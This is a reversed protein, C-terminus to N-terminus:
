NLIGDDCGIHFFTSLFVVYGGVDSLVLMFVDRFHEDNVPVNVPVTLAEM